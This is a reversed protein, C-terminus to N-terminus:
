HVFILDDEDVLGGTDATEADDGFNTGIETVLKTVFNFYAV